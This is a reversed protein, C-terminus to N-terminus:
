ERERDKRVADWLHSTDFNVIDGTIELKGALENRLSKFKAKKPPSVVALPQGRKTVTITEGKTKVEDLFGLCKAKFETVTVFRTSM